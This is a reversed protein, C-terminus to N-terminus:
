YLCKVMEFMINQNVFEKLDSNIYVYSYLTKGNFRKQYIEFSGEAFGLDKMYGNILIERKGEDNINFLKLSLEEDWFLIKISENTYNNLYVALEEMNIQSLTVKEEFNDPIAKILLKDRTIVFNLAEVSCAELRM